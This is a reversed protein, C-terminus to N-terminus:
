IKGHDGFFFYINIDVLDDLLTQTFLSVHREKNTTFVCRLPYENDLIISYTNETRALFKDWSDKEISCDKRLAVGKSQRGYEGSEFDAIIDHVGSLGTAEYIIRLAEEKDSYKKQSKIFDKSTNHIM